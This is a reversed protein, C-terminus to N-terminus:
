RSLRLIESAISTFANDLDVANEAWVYLGTPQAPNYSNLGSDITNSLRKLLSSGAESADGGSVYACFNIELTNVAAGL